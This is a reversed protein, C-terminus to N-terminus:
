TCLVIEGMETSMKLESYLQVWNCFMGNKSVM